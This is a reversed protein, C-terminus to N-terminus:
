RILKRARIINSVSWISAPRRPTFRLAYRERDLSRLKGDIWGFCLAEEVADSLSLDGQRYRAKSLILWAETSHRHNSQLWARWDERRRFHLLENQEAV